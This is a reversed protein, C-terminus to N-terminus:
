ITATRAFCFQESCSAKLWLVTSWPCGHLGCVSGGPCAKFGWFACSYASSDLSMQVLDQSLLEGVLM